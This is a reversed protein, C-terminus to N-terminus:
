LLDDRKICWHCTLRLATSYQLPLWSKSKLFNCQKGSASLRWSTSSRQFPHESFICRSNSTIGWIEFIQHHIASKGMEWDNQSSAQGHLQRIKRVIKLGIHWIRCHVMGGRLIVSLMACICVSIRVSIYINLYRKKWCNIQKYRCLWTQILTTLIYTNLISLM